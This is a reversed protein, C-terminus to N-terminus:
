SLKARFLSRKYFVLLMLMKTLDKQKKRLKLIPKPNLRRMRLLNLHKLAELLFDLANESKKKLKPKSSSNM